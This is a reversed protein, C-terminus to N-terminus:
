CRRARLEHGARCKDVAGGCSRRKASRRMGAARLPGFGNEWPHSTHSKSVRISPTIARPASGPRMTIIAMPQMRIYRPMLFSYSGVSSTGMPRPVMRTLMGAEPTRMVPSAAPGNWIRNSAPMSVSSKGSSSKMPMPAIISKPGSSALGNRSSNPAAAWNPMKKTIMMAASSPKWMLSAAEMPMMAAASPGVEIKTAFVSPDFYMPAMM